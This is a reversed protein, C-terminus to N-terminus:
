LSPGDLFQVGIVSENRWAVECDRSTNSANFNLTFRSPINSSSQVKLRCGTASLDSIQCDVVSTRGNFVIKAGLFVRRRTARRSEDSLAPPPRLAQLASILLNPDLAQVWSWQQSSLSEALRNLSGAELGTEGADTSAQSSATMM